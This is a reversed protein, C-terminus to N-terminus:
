CELGRPLPRPPRTERAFQRLPLITRPRRRSLCERPPPDDAAASRRAVRSRCHRVAGPVRAPRAIQSLRQGGTDDAPPACPRHFRCPSDRCETRRSKVEVFVVTRGDVAILDFEGYRTRHRRAVIKYGLRRLYRAARREGLEGFSPTRFREALWTKISVASELGPPASWSTCPGVPGGGVSM